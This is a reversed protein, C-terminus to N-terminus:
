PFFLPWIAISCGSVALGGMAHEAIPPRRPAGTGDPLSKQYGDQSPHMRSGNPSGHRSHEGGVHISPHVLIRGNVSFGEPSSLDVILRWAGPSKKTVLGFRSVHVVQGVGDPAAGISPGPCVGRGPVRQDSGPTVQSVAYEM